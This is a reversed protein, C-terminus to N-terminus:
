GYTEELIFFTSYIHDTVQATIYLRSINNDDEKYFCLCRLTTDFINGPMNEGFFLHCDLNNKFSFPTNSSALSPCCQNASSWLADRSFTVLTDTKVHNIIM